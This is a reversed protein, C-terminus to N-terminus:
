HPRLCQHCLQRSLLDLEEWPHLQSDQAEGAEWGVHQHLAEWRRHGSHIAQDQHQQNSNRTAGLHIKDLGELRNIRKRNKRILRLVVERVRLIRSSLISGRSTLAHRSTKDKITRQGWRRLLEEWWHRTIPLKAIKISTSCRSKWGFRFRWRIVSRILWYDAALHQHLAEVQANMMARHSNVRNSTIVLITKYWRISSKCDIM